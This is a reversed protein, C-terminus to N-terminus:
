LHVVPPSCGLPHNGQVAPATIREQVVAGHRGQGLAREIPPPVGGAVDQRRAADRHQGYLYAPRQIASAADLALKGLVQM